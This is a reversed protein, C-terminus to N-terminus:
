IQCLPYHKPAANLRELDAANDMAAEFRSLVAGTQRDFFHQLSSRHDAFAMILEDARITLRTM